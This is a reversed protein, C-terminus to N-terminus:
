SSSERLLDETTYIPAMLLGSNLAMDVIDSKNYNILFAAVSQRAEALDEFTVVEDEIKQPLTVWDWDHFKAPLSEEDKMWKFLRNSKGGATPGMSLHMEILGDKVQWKSQRTRSGSGSLDLSKKKGKAESTPGLFSFNEHRIAHAVIASLTSQTLSQQVSVDVHQGQHIQSRAIYAILVGVVADCAAHLWAQDSSIRLPAHNSGSTDGIQSFHDM